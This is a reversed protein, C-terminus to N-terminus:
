SGAERVVVIFPSSHTDHVPAIPTSTSGSTVFLGLSTGRFHRASGRTAYQGTAHAKVCWSHLGAMYTTSISIAYCTRASSHNTVRVVLSEVGAVRPANPVRYSCVPGALNRGLASCTQHYGLVGTARWTWPTTASASVGPAVSLAMTVLGVLTV